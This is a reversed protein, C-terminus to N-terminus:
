QATWRGDILLHQGTVYNAARSALVVVDAPAGVRAHPRTLQIMAGKSASYPAPAAGTM